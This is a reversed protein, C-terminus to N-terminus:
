KMVAPFEMYTARAALWHRDLAAYAACYLEEFPSAAASHQRAQDRDGPTSGETSSGSTSSGDPQAHMCNLTIRLDNLMATCSKTSWLLLLEM